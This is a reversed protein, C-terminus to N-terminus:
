NVRKEFEKAKLKRRSHYLKQRRAEALREEDTKNARARKYYEQWHKKVAEFAEEYTSFKQDKGIPTKTTKGLVRIVAKTSVLSLENDKGRKYDRDFDITSIKIRTMSYRDALEILEKNMLELENM